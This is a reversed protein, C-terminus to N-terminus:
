QKYETIDEDGFPDGCEPCFKPPKSPDAPMWGCKDCRYQPTGMPKKEGCEQCFKGLNSSGCKPCEWGAEPKKAGCEPCFKGSAMHGCVCQWGAGTAAAAQQQQPPQQYQQQQPPQQQGQMNYYGQANMSNGGMQGIMGVGMLGTVAGAENSAAAKLAEAQAGVLTAGAMSPDRLIAIRQAEKILNADEEPLTVSGLAVSVVDIGRLESWKKSLAVNMADQLEETHVMIQNPRLGMDSLKGFGPQLGAIFETKLQGDITSRKYEDTVNGCVNTYFLIPDAIKYSFTGFCRVSVDVDLGINRDVVRFPIPTSTGFKNDIIEKINIYYVRQDKGTDGGYGVRKGFTKFSNIVSAGLNGAFVSPETSTDFTYLGPESSIAVIKGQEVIIMCQGDAVSIGSGNSIINDSGKTNSSRGSVRKQGKVVLTDAPMSECYFFEKWQDALTSGAAAGIAKILGM